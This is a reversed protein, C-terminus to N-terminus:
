KPPPCSYRPRACADNQAVPSGPPWAQRIHMSTHWTGKDLRQTWIAGDANSCLLQEADKVEDAMCISKASAGNYDHLVVATKDVEFFMFTCAAGNPCPLFSEGLKGGM